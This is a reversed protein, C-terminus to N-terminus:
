RGNGYKKSVLLIFERRIRKRNMYHQLYERLIPDTERLQELEKESKIYWELEFRPNFNIYETRQVRFGSQELRKSLSEENEIFISCSEGLLPRIRRKLIWHEDNPSYDAFLFLGNNRLVRYAELFVDNKVSYDSTVFFCTAVGFAEDCFPLNFANGRVLQQIRNKASKLMSISFDLGIVKTNNPFLSAVVGPGCGIDLVTKGDIFELVKDAIDSVGELRIHYGREFSGTRGKDEWFEKLSALSGTYFSKEMKM